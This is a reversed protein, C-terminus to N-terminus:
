EKCKKTMPKKVAIRQPKQIQEVFTITKSQRLMRLEGKPLQGINRTPPLKVAELVQALSPVYRNWEGTGYTVSRKSGKVAGCKQKEGGAKLRLRRMKTETTAPQAYRYPENNTLIHWAIAVLKRATAVVAVNRNKRKSLRRFFNGIPGPHQAVRQAAQVMMARAHGSGQKTIAGHYCNNASQKTSPVLGMYSSAHDGDRFRSIDGLTAILTLAVTIDVGPMTMLLKAREDEFALEALLKEQEAIEIEINDFLRLDSDIASRGEADLPVNQLWVRGVKSFLDKIPSTILRLHLVAHIRNKIATRDMVLGARRATVWRLRQTKADPEWVQPLFDCRLLQAM